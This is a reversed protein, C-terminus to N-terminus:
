LGKSTTFLVFPAGTAGSAAAIQRTLDILATKMESDSKFETIVGDITVARTGSYRARELAAKMAVLDALTAM